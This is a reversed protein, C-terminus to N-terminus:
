AGGSTSPRAITEGASLGALIEIQEGFRRGTQVFRRNVKGDRFVSVFELQGHREVASVPVVLAKESGTSILLRGYMGTYLDPVNPVLVKVLLSRSAIDAQPVIEDVTATTEKGDSGIRVRLTGGIRLRRAVSERVPAELRLLSPDYLSLIPQGPVAMDGSNQKKEVVVGSM